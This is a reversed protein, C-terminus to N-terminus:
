QLTHQLGIMFEQMVGRVAQFSNKTRGAALAVSRSRYFHVHRIKDESRRDTRCLDSMVVFLM